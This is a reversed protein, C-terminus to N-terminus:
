PLLLLLIIVHFNSSVRSDTLLMFVVCNSLDFGTSRGGRKPSERDHVVTGQDELADKLAFQGRKLSKRGSAVLSRYFKSM